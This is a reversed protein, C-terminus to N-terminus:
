NDKKKKAPVMDTSMQLDLPQLIVIMTILPKVVEDKAAAKDDKNKAKDAAQDAKDVVKAKDADKDKDAVKAPDDAKAESKVAESPPKTKKPMKLYVKAYLGAQLDEIKALYGPKTTDKGRLEAKEEKSYVKVNGKDDYDTELFMKRISVKDSLELEFDKYEHALMFPQNNPNSNAAAAQMMQQYQQVQITALLQQMRIQRVFPNTTAMVQAQQRYINLLQNYQNNNGKPPRYKPNPVMHPIDLRFTVSSTNISALKGTMDKITALWKYDQDTAFEAVETNKKQAGVDTTVLALFGVTLAAVVITRDMKWEGSSEDRKM